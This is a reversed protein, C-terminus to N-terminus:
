NFGLLDVFEDSSFTRPVEEAVGEINIYASRISISALPKLLGGHRLPVSSSVAGRCAVALTSM